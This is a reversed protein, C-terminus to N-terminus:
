AAENVNQEAFKELQILISEYAQLQGALQAEKMTDRQNQRIANVLDGTLDQQQQNLFTQLAIRFSPDHLVDWLIQAEALRLPVPITSEKRNRRKQNM